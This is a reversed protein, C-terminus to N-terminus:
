ETGDFRQGTRVERSLQETAEAAESGILAVADGPVAEVDSVRTM